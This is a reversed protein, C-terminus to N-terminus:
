GPWWSWTLKQRVHNKRGRFAQFRVLYAIRTPWPCHRSAPGINTFTSSAPSSMNSSQVYTLPLRPPYVIFKQSSYNPDDIRKRKTRSRVGNPVRLHSPPEQGTDNSNGLRSRGLQCVINGGRGSPLHHCSVCSTAEFRAANEDSRESWTM